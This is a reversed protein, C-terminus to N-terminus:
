QSLPLAEHCPNGTQARHNFPWRWNVSNKERVREKVEERESEKERERERERVRERDLWCGRSMEM